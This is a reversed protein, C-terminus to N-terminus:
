QDKVAGSRTFFWTKLADVELVPAASAAKDRLATRQDPGLQM